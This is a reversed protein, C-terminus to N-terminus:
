MWEARAGEHDISYFGCSEAGFVPEMRNKFANGLIHPVFAQVTGGFGGGHIRCAGREGLFSEALAIGVMAGQRVSGGVSVNQLYMASSAGSRRTLNLFSDMNSSALAAVREAVLREENYYHLARLLARDGLESRIQPASAIVDSEPVNSLKDAGLLAAVAQMDAPVAAYEDILDAHSEGVAVLALSYGLGDFDVDISNALSEAGDAFDMHQVGGLACAAQDMLGCPKGFWDHEVEQALRALELKSTEEAGWLLLTGALVAVEFAASSSLGSGEPVDSQVELDFGFPEGGRALAQACCGRVLSATTGREDAVPALGELSLEFPEYGASRVRVVSLGNEVFEARVHRDIGCAIVHGGEHDTHNGALESRGPATAFVRRTM